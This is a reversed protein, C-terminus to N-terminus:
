GAAVGFKYGVGRVTKIIRPNAPDKEIKERTRKVLTTVIGTDETYDTDWIQYLLQERTFVQKPHSALLWLLEFEKLTLDTERDEVEVTRATRNISIGDARIVEKAEPMASRDAARRMVAKIRLLLEASDFPKTLYDDCGLSLGMIRDLTENKASLIIIPVRSTERIKRCVEFGDMHPMMIDLVILDPNAEEFVAMVESGDAATVVEFGERSLFGTLFKLIRPEDDAVLIRNKGSM